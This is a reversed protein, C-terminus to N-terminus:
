KMYYHAVSGAAIVLGVTTAVAWSVLTVQKRRQVVVDNELLPISGLVPLQTYARADKLNRLSADKMERVAVLIIGLVAGAIAGIPIILARKPETPDKPDSASDIVEVLEGQKATQMASSLNAKHAKADLDEWKLKAADRFQILEAYQQESAPSAAMRAQFERQQQAALRQETQIQQEDQAVVKLQSQLQDIAAASDLKERALVPNASDTDKASSKSAEDRERKLVALREQNTQLDPYDPTYREKMSAIVTELESIEKDLENNRENRSGTVPALQRISNAREKASRLASEILVRRESAHAEADSLSNMRQQAAAMQALNAQMEEPLAGAHESRYKGLDAEATDLDKKAKQEEDNFFTTAQQQTLNTEASTSSMFRSVLEACIKNALLRERYKYSIELIFAAKTNPNGANTSRMEIAKRMQDVVDEMPSSKLEKQYLKNDEILKSLTTRSRISEALQDVRAQMDEAGVNQVMTESIQQPVIRITAKSVFTDEMMYAVVTSIVLGAFIPGIIWALNRRLIDVYDEFDLARRAIESKDVM